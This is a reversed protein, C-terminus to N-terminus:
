QQARRPPTARPGPASPRLRYKRGGKGRGSPPMITKRWLGDSDRLGAIVQWAGGHGSRVKIEDITGGDEGLEKLAQVVAYQAPTLCRPATQGLVVPPKDPGRLEVADAWAEPVPLLPAEVPGAAAGADGARARKLALVDDVRKNGSFLKLEGASMGSKDAWAIASNRFATPTVPGTLGASRAANQVKLNVANISLRGGPSRRREIPRFLPGPIEGRFGVWRELAEFTLPHLSVWRDPRGRAGRVFVRRGGRDFDGLDLAVVEGNRLGNLCVLLTFALDRTPRTEPGRGLESRAWGILRRVDDETAVRAGAYHGPYPPKVDIVIPWRTLGMERANGVLVRISVAERKLSWASLGRRAEADLFERVLANAPENPMRIVKRFIDSASRAHAYTALAEWDGLYIRVTADGLDAADLV